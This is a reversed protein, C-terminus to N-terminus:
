PESLRRLCEGRKSPLPPEWFDGFFDCNLCFDVGWFADEVFFFQFVM